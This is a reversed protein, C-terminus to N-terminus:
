MKLFSDLMTFIIALPEDIDELIQQRVSDLHINLKIESKQSIKDNEAITQYLDKLVAAKADHLRKYHEEWLDASRVLFTFTAKLKM